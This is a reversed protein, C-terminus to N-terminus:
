KVRKLYGMAHHTYLLEKSRDVVFMGPFEDLFEKVAEYPGTSHWRSMKMDEVICYEGIQSASAIPLKSLLSVTSASNIHLRHHQAV